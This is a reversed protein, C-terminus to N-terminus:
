YKTIEEFRQNERNYKLKTKGTKGDRNKAIIISLEIEKLSQTNEFNENHLFIVETASQELEGTEKLESLKPEKKDDANRNLQAALFITCDFDLTVRRLEKLVSTLHEYISQNSNKGGILGAYDIFAIVHGNKSENAITRKLTRITQGGFYVKLNNNSINKCGSEIAERQYDTEIMNLCKIPIATNISVLRRYIQIESMEMSFFICNYKKSLDEFLNLMFATKGVSPRAGIVVLDQEKVDVYDSLKKLRFKISKNKSNILKFIEEASKKGAETKISMSEFKHIQDLMEETSIKENKYLDVVHLIKNQIYRALLTEQYYSFNNVPIVESMLESLKSIIENIKFNDNFVHKYNEALGVISITKSDSYQQKFLNFIFKNTGNLFLEDSIVCQKMFDPNLLLLGLIEDELDNM